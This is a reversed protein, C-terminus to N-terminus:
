LIAKAVTAVHWNIAASVPRVVATKHGVQDKKGRCFRACIFPAKAPQNTTKSPVIVVSNM